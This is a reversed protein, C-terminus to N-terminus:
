AGRTIIADYTEPDYLVFFGAVPMVSLDGLMGNLKKYITRDFNGNVAKSDLENSKLIDPGFGQDVLILEVTGSRGMLKLRDGDVQFNLLDSKKMLDNLFEDGQDYPESSPEQKEQQAQRKMFEERTMYDAPATIIYKEIDPSDLDMYDDLLHSRISWRYPKSVREIDSLVGKLNKLVNEMRDLEVFLMYFGDENPNPSVEIDRSEFESFNLFRYLDKAALDNKIFFGVVMVYEPDGTKPKYEDISIKSLMLDSLDGQTLSM